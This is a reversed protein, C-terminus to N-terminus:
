KAQLLQLQKTKQEEKQAQAIAIQKTQEFVDQFLPKIQSKDINGMATQECIRFLAERALLVINDRGALAAATAAASADIGTAKAGSVELSGKLGSNFSLAVDPAPEACSTVHGADNTALWAGRRSSDYSVWYRSNASLQHISAPRTFNACGAVGFVIPLLLLTRM